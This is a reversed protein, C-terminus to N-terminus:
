LNPSTALLRLARDPSLHALIPTLGPAVAMPSKFILNTDNHPFGGGGEDMGAIYTTGSGGSRGHDACRPHLHRRQDSNRAAGRPAAETSFISM